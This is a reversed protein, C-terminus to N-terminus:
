ADGPRSPGLRRWRFSSRGSANRAWTAGASAAVRTPYVLVADQCGLAESYAVVQYLDANDAKDPAKYKADLVCLPRGSQRDYLVMDMELRFQEGEGVHLVDQYRLEVSAPIHAKLWEAVFLEFLRSMEVIFPVMQHMGAASTPGTNELFFRCLAHLPEYDDNLRNYLRGVCASAPFPVELAMGHVVHYARRVTPLVRDSCLGSHAVRSLTVRPDPEGGRRGHAGPLECLIRADWPRRLRQRVDVAGRVYPLTKRQPVYSAYLGRRARDLVRRALINAVREYFEALSGSARVGQFELARLKYAYELMQFLNAIPVKPEISLHLDPTVPLYGVWGQSMLVWQQGTKFSPPEVSVRDRYDTYLTEAQAESVQDRPLQTPQYEVLSIVQARENV